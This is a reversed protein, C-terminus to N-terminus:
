QHLAPKLSPWAMVRRRNATKRLSVALQPQQERTTKTVCIPNGDSGEDCEEFTLNVLCYVAIETNSNLVALAQAILKAQGFFCSKMAPQLSVASQDTRYGANFKSPLSRFLTVLEASTHKRWVPTGLETIPSSGASM